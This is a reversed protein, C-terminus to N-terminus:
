QLAALAKDYVTLLHGGSVALSNQYSQNLVLERTASKLEGGSLSAPDDSLANLEFWQKAAEDQYANFVRTGAYVRTLAHAEDYPMHILAQTAVASEWASTSMPIFTMTVSTNAPLPVHEGHLRARGYRVLADLPAATAEEQAIAGALTERNARLEQRLDIRVRDVLEHNHWAEVAAELGLAILIGVTITGIEILFERVSHAAKPKHIDM